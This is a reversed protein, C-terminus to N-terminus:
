KGTIHVLNDMTFYLPPFFIDFKSLCLSITSLKDYKGINNQPYTKYVIYYM